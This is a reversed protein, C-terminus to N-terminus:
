SFVLLNTNSEKEHKFSVQEGELVLSPLLMCSQLEPAAFFSFYNKFGSLLAALIAM